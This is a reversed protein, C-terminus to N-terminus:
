TLAKLRIEFVTHEYNSEVTIRGEHMEIINKAIALGLGSGATKTSRSKEVRYFTEFITDLEEEPILSDYNIIRSVAEDDEKYLEIDVYRGESGYRIANSIINDFVRAILDGNAKSYIPSEKIFLRGELDNKSLIPLFDEMVQKILYSLDIKEKVMETDGYNFKTFEFLEEILREMRISKNYAIKAYHEIKDTPLSQNNIILDLYGSISTLPTRLDHAINVVLRDKSSKAYEGSEVAKKLNSAATNVNKAIIGIEDKSKVPIAINFHGEAIQSIGEAISKFRTTYHRTFILFCIFFLPLFLLLFVNLDGIRRIYNRIHYLNDGFSANAQYYSSLGYYVLATIGGAIIGSAIFMSIM